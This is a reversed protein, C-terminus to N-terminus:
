YRQLIIIKSPQSCIIEFDQDISDINENYANTEREADYDSSLEIVEGESEDSLIVHPLNEVENDFSDDFNILELPEDKVDIKSAKDLIVFDDSNKRLKQQTSVIDSIESSSDPGPNYSEDGRDNLSDGGAVFDIDSQHRSYEQGSSFYHSDEIEAEDTIDSKNSQLKSLSIHDRSDAIISADSHIPDAIKGNNNFDDFEQDMYDDFDNNNTNNDTIKESKQREQKKRQAALAEKRQIEKEIDYILDDDDDSSDEVENYVKDFLSEDKKDNSVNKRVEYLETNETRESSKLTSPKSLSEKKFKLEKDINQIKLMKDDQSLSTAELVSCKKELLTVLEKYINITEEQLNTESREINFSSNKALTRRNSLNANKTVPKSPELIEISLGAVTEQRKTLNRSINSSTNSRQVPPKYSTQDTNRQTDQINNSNIINTNSTQTTLNNSRSLTPPIDNVVSSYQNKERTEIPVIALKSLNEENYIQIDIGKKFINELIPGNIRHVSSKKMHNVEKQIHHSTKKVQQTTNM